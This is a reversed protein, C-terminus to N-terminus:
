TPSSDDRVLAFQNELGFRHMIELFENPPDAVGPLLRDLFLVDWGLQKLGLLYQLLVWAHGGHRPKQALAGGLIITGTNM